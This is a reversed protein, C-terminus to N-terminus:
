KNKATACTATANLVESLCTWNHKQSILNILYITIIFLLQLTTM